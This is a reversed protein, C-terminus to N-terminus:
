SYILQAVIKSVLRIFKFLMNQLHGFGHAFLVQIIPKITHFPINIMVTLIKLFLSTMNIPLRHSIIVFGSIYCTAKTRAIISCTNLYKSYLSLHNLSLQIILTYYSRHSKVNLIQNDTRMLKFVYKNM